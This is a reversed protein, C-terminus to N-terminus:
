VKFPVGARKTFARRALWFVAGFVVAAALVALWLKAEVLALVAVTGVAPLGALLASHSRFGAFHERMATDLGALSALVLGVGIALRGNSEDANLFGYVLLVIGVLVSVEVLPVPHWPPKPRADAQELMRDMRSAPRAARREPAAPEAPEAVPKPAAPRPGGRRAQRAKRRGRKSQSM